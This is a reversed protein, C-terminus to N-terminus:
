VRNGWYRLWVAPDTINRKFIDAPINIAFPVHGKYFKDSSRVDVISVKTGGFMGIMRGGWFQLWSTQRMLLPTDYTWFPLDREDSLWGLQSEKYLKVKPFGALFKVAFFPVSAAVGGGCHTYITQEPKIDLYKLMRKIEETSKFTKDPNFFDASPIM